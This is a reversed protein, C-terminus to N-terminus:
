SDGESPSTWSAPRTLGDPLLTMEDGVAQDIQRQVLGKALSLNVGKVNAGELHATKPLRGALEGFRTGRLYAGEFRRWYEDEDPERGPSLVADKLWARSVNAEELHAGRLIAGTLVATALNARELHAGSLHARVLKIGASRNVDELHARRLDAGELDASTLDAHNLHADRLDTGKLCAGFLVAHELHAGRLNAGEFNAQILDAYELHTGSLDIRDVEGNVWRDDLRNLRGIVTLAAQVDTRPPRAEPAEARDDMSGRVNHRVFACLVDVITSRDRDSGEAIRRLTYIGGFRMGIEGGLQGIANAYLDNVQAEREQEEKARNARRTEALAAGAGLAAITAAFVALIGARTTATAQAGAGSKVDADEYFAPAKVWLLILGVAVVVLLVLVITPWRGWKDWWSRGQRKGGVMPLSIGM